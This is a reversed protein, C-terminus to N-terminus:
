KGKKALYGENIKNKWYDLRENSIAGNGKSLEKELAIIDDSGLYGSNEFVKNIEATPANAKPDLADVEQEQSEDVIEADQVEVNQQDINETNNLGSNIISDVQDQANEPKPLEVNGNNDIEESEQLLEAQSLGQIIDPFLHNLLRARAKYKRMDKPYKNHVNGLGAQKVDAASFERVAVPQNKRKGVCISTSDPDVNKLHEWGPVKDRAYAFAENDEIVFECEHSQRVLALPADGWLSPKGNIVAINNLAVMPAKIGIQQGWSIAVFIDNPRGQFEKPIIKSTALFECLKRAETFSDPLQTFGNEQVMQNGTTTLSM